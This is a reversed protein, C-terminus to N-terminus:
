PVLLRGGLLALLVGLVRNIPRSVANYRRRVAPTSMLLILCGYVLLADFLVIIVAAVKVGAPAGAPLLLLFISGFYALVKPNLLGVLLGSRLARWPNDNSNGTAGASDNGPSRWLRLGLYVLYAAAAIRLVDQLVPMARFLAELGAIAAVAWLAGAVALGGAIACARRLDQAAAQTVLIVNPGPSLISVIDIAALTLLPLFYEMM